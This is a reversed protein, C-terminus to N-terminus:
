HYYLYQLISDKSQFMCSNFKQFYSGLMAAPAQEGGADGLFDLIAMLYHLGSRSLM